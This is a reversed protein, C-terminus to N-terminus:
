SRECTAFVQMIITLTNKKRVMGGYFMAVGPVTMLLVLATATLMWATDGTDLAAAEQALATAPAALVAAVAGAVVTMRKVISGHAAAAARSGARVKTSITAAARM